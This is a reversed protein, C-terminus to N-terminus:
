GLRRGLRVPSARPGAAAAEPAGLGDPAAANASEASLVTDIPDARGIVAPGLGAAWPVPGLLM